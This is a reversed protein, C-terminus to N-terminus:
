AASPDATASYVPNTAAKIAAGRGHPLDLTSGVADIPDLDITGRHLLVRSGQHQSQCGAHHRECREDGNRAPEARPSACDLEPALSVTTATQDTARQGTPTAKTM